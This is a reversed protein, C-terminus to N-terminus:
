QLLAYPKKCNTRALLELLVEERHEQKALLMEVCLSLSIGENTAKEKAWLWVVEHKKHTVLSITKTSEFEKTRPLFCM